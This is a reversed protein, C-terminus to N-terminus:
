VKRNCYWNFECYRCHKSYLTKDFASFNFDNISKITNKLSAKFRAHILDDYNIITIIQPPDPQWYKMALNKIDTEKGILGDYKESMTFMYVMTQFSNQIKDMNKSYNNGANTGHTKWDWITVSGNQVVVLDFNAELQLGDSNTRLTYEPYYAAAKNIVFFKELNNFWKYLTEYGGVRETFGTDLGMFYRQALLHFKRGNELAERSEKDPMADWKLGEMYRKKFKLPCNEFANLSQQTYYFQKSNRIDKM